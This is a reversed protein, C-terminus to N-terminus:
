SGFWPPLRCYGAVHMQLSGGSAQQTVVNMFYRTLKLMTILASMRARVQRRYRSDSEQFQSGALMSKVKQMDGDQIAIKLEEMETKNFIEDKNRSNLSIDTSMGPTAARDIQLGTGDVNKSFVKIWLSITDM